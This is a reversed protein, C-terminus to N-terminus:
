LIIRSKKWHVWYSIRFLVTYKKIFCVMGKCHEPNQQSFNEFHFIHILQQSL